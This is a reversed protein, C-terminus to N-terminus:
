AVFWDMDDQINLSESGDYEDITFVTGKSLWVVELDRAGGFYMLEGKPDLNNDDCNFIEECFEVTVEEGSLIKEVIEPCFVMDARMSNWTSWGAGFGPSYLVAVKDDKIVKRM